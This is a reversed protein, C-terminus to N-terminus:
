DMWLWVNVVVHEMAGKREVGLTISQLAPIRDICHPISPTAEYRQDVPWGTLQGSPGESRQRWHQPELESDSTEFRANQWLLAEAPTPQGEMGCQTPHIVPATHSVLTHCSPSLLHCLLSLSHHLFAAYCICCCHCTVPPLSSFAWCVRILVGVCRAGEQTLNCATLDLWDLTQATRVADCIELVCLSVCLPHTMLLECDLHQGM